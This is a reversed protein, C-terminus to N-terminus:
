GTRVFTFRLGISASTLRKEEPFYALL